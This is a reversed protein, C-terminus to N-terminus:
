ITIDVFTFLGSIHICSEMAAMQLENYAETDGMLKELENVRLKSHPYVLHSGGRFPFSSM